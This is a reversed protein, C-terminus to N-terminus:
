EMNNWIIGWHWSVVDAKGCRMQFFILSMLWAVHGTRHTRHTAQRTKSTVQRVIAGSRSFSCCRRWVEPTDWLPKVNEWNFWRWVRWSMMCAYYACLIYSRPKAALNTRMYECVYTVSDKSDSMFVYVARILFWHYLCIVFICADTCGLMKRWKPHSLLWMSRAASFEFPAQILDNCLPGGPVLSTPLWDNRGQPAAPTLFQYIYIVLTLPNATFM